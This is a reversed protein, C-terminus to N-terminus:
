AASTTAPRTRLDTLHPNLFTITRTGHEAAIGFDVAGRALAAPLTAVLPPAQDLQVTLKSGRVTISVQRHDRHPLTATALVKVQTGIQQRLQVTGDGIVVEARGRTGPVLRERVGIYATTDPNAGFVDTTIRYDTWEGPNVPAACRGYTASSLRLAPQGAQRTVTCHADDGYWTLSTLTANLPEPVAKRLLNLLAPTSLDSTITVRPLRWPDTGVGVPVELEGANRDLDDGAFAVQFGAQRLLVNIQEPIAPDDTPHNTADFPFAFATAPHGLLRRFFAQNAALDARVRIRWQALTEKHNDIILRNILVPRQTGDIALAQHHQDNTHGGLEWRGSAAMRRVQDTSLYYSRQHPPVIKSTILFAVANFGYRRLVPDADVWNSAPGDDVTLLLPRSPLRVPRGARLAELDTLRVTHFGAQRLAAMQTAFATPSVTYPSSSTVTSVDHYNLVLISGSYSPFNRVASAIATTDVRGVRHQGPDYPRTRAIWLGAAAGLSLLLAVSVLLRGGRRLPGVAAATHPPAEPPV